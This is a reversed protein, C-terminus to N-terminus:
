ISEFMKWTGLGIKVWHKLDLLLTFPGHVGELLAPVASHLAFRCLCEIPILLWYKTTTMLEFQGTKFTRCGPPWLHPQGHNPYRPHAAHWWSRYALSWRPSGVRDSIVLHNLKLEKVRGYIKVNRRICELQSQFSIYHHLRSIVSSIFCTQLRPYEDCIHSDVPCTEHSINEKEAPRRRTEWVHLCKFGLQKVTAVSPESQKATGWM